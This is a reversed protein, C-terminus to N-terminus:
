GPMDGSRSSAFAPRFVLVTLIGILAMSVTLEIGHALRVMQPIVPNPIILGWATAAVFLVPVLILAERRASVGRLLYLASFCWGVARLLQFGLLPLLEGSSEAWEAYLERTEPFAWAIFGFSYYILPYGAIAAAIRIGFRRPLTEPRFVPRSLRERRSLSMAIGICIALELLEQLTMYIIDRNTFLPLAERFYLVEMQNLVSLIVWFTALSGVYLKLGRYRLSIVTGGVLIGVVFTHIMVSVIMLPGAQDTMAANIDDSLPLLAGLLFTAVMYIAGSAFLLWILRTEKKM